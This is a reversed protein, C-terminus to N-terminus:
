KRKRGTAAGPPLISRAPLSELASANASIVSDAGVAVRPGLVAGAGVLVREGVMSHGLLKAGPGIFSHAAVTVHHGVYSLPRVVVNDGLQAFPQLSVSEFVLCNRGIGVSPHVRVSPHVYSAFEYNMACAALFIRERLRNREGPGLAILLECSGAPFRSTLREFPIVDADCFRAAMVFNQQVTFAAIERGLEERLSLCALLAMDGTGFIVIKRM